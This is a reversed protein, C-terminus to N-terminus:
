SGEAVALASEIAEAFGAANAQFYFRTLERGSRDILVFTPTGRVGYQAAASRDHDVSKEVFRMQEAFAAATEHAFPGMQECYHCGTGSFWVLTPRRDPSPEDASPLRATSHFVTHASGRHVEISTGANSEALSRAPADLASSRANGSGAQALAGLVFIASLGLLLAGGIGWVARRWRGGAGATRRQRAVRGRDTRSRKSMALASWTVAAGAM